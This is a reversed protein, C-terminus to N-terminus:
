FKLEVKRLIREVEFDIKFLNDRIEAALEEKDENNPIEPFFTSLANYIEEWQEDEWFMNSIDELTLMFDTNNIHEKIFEQGKTM